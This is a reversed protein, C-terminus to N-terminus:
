RTHVTVTFTENSALTRLQRSQIGLVEYSFSGSPVSDVMRTEGTTLPYARENVVVTVPELYANVLRIHGTSAATQNPPYAAITSRTKLGDMDKQMQALQKKLDDVDAQAKEIKLNMNVAADKRDAMEKQFANDFALFSVKLQDLTLLAKKVDEIQKSLTALDPPKNPTETQALAAPSMSLAGALIAEPSFKKWTCMM